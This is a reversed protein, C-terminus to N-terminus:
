GRGLGVLRNPVRGIFSVTGGILLTAFIALIAAFFFIAITRVAPPSVTGPVALLPRRAISFAFLVAVTVAIVAVITICAVVIVLAVIFIPLVTVLVIYM